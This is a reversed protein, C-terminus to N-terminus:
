LYITILTGRPSHPKFLQTIQVDVTASQQPRLLVIDVPLQIGTLWCETCSPFMKRFAVVAWSDFTIKHPHRANLVHLSPSSWYLISVDWETMSPRRTTFQQHKAWPFNDSDRYLISAPQGFVPCTYLSVNVPSQAVKLPGRSVFLEM